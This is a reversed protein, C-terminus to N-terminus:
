LVARHDWSRERGAIFNGTKSRTRQQFDLRHMKIGLRRKGQGRPQRRRGINIATLQNGIRANARNQHIKQSHGHHAVCAKLGKVIHRAPLRRPYRKTSPHGLPHSQRHGIHAFLGFAIAAIGANFACHSLTLPHQQDFIQGCIASRLQRKHIRDALSPGTARMRGHDKVIANKGLGRLTQGIVAHLQM